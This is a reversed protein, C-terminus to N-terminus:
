NAKGQNWAGARILKKKLGQLPYHENYAKVAYSRAMKLNNMSLYLLGLNYHLEPSGPMLTEAQKYFSLAEEQKGSRHLHIGYLLLVAGDRPAFKIAKEFYYEATNRPTIKAPIANKKRAERWLRGMSNLARHHNPFSKLVYMLDVSPYVNTGMGARLNEVDSNFHYAEVIPLKDRFHEPNTYDFPGYAFTSSSFASLLMFISLTRKHMVAGTSQEAFAGQKHPVSKLLINTATIIRKKADSACEATSSIRMRWLYFIHM